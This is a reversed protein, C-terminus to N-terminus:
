HLRAPEEASTGRLREVYAELDPRALLTRGAARVTRLRGSAIEKYLSTRGIGLLSCAENVRFLLKSPVGPASAYDFSM